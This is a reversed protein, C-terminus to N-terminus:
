DGLGAALRHFERRLPQFSESPVRPHVRNTLLVYARERGPELWLSTGTFGTHGPADDPLVSRAAESAAATVLGFTRDGGPTVPLLLRNRAEPSLELKGPLLIERAIAAFVPDVAVAGEPHSRVAATDEKESQPRCASALILCVAIARM